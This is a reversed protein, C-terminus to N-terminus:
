SVMSIKFCRYHVVANVIRGGAACYPQYFLDVLRSVESHGVLGWLWFIIIIKVWPTWPQLALKTKRVEVNANYRTRLKTFVSPRVFPCWTHFYHRGIRSHGPPDFITKICNVATYFIGKM